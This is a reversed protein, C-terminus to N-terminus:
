MAEIWGGQVTFDVDSAVVLAIGIPLTRDVVLTSNPNVTAILFSQNSSPAASVITGGAVNGGTLGADTQTLRLMGGVSLNPGSYTETSVSAVSQLTGLSVTTNPVNFTIVGDMEWATSDGYTDISWSAILATNSSSQQLRVAPVFALPGGSTNTATGFIRCHVQSGADVTNAGFVFEAITYTGPAYTNYQATSVTAARIKLASYISSQANPRLGSNQVAQTDIPLLMLAALLLKTM